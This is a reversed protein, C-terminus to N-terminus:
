RYIMQGTTPDYVPVGKPRQGPVAPASPATPTVITSSPLGGAPAAPKNAPKTGYVMTMDQDVIAAQESAPKRAFIPDRLRATLALRRAEEPSTRKKFDGVGVLAPMMGNLQEDDYGAGRLAKVKATIKAQEAKGVGASKIQDEVTLEELKNTHRREDSAADEKAKDAARAKENAMQRDATRQDNYADEAYKARASDVATQRKFQQEFMAPPSLASLGMETLARRDIFQARVEGTEDNKLSVNFGTVNGAKDKVAEKSVPTIGDDYQKYLEFIHDAAKEMNGSQAARFASAWTDMNKQTQKDKVYKGWAEAKDIDGQELYANQIKPVANKMFFDTDSPATKRAHANAEEVTDFSKDGVSYRKMASPAQADLMSQVAPTNPQQPAQDPLPQGDPTTILPAGPTAGPGDIPITQAPAGRAQTPAEYGPTMETGAQQMSIDAPAPQNGPLGKDKVMDSITQQREAQAEKMGQERIEDIKRKKMLENIREGMAMGRDLGQGLGGAFGGWNM